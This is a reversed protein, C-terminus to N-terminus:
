ARQEAVELPMHVLPAYQATMPVTLDMVLRASQAPSAIFPACPKFMKVYELRISLAWILATAFCYGAELCDSHVSSM